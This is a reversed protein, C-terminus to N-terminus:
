PRRIHDSHLRKQDKGDGIAVIRELVGRLTSATGDRHLLYIPRTSCLVYQSTHLASDNWVSQQTEASNSVMKYICRRLVWSLRVHIYEQRFRPRGLINRANERRLCLLLFRLVSPFDWNYHERLTLLRCNLTNRSSTVPPVKSSTVWPALLYDTIISIFIFYAALLSLLRFSYPQKILSGNRM